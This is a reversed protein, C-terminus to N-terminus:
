EALGAVDFALGKSTHMGLRLMRGGSLTFVFWFEGEIPVGSTRGRARQHLRVVVHDGADIFEEAQVTWQDFGETWDATAKLFGERGDYTLGDPEARYTVFGPDADALASDVEGRDFADFARRISRSTRRPCRWWYREVRAV